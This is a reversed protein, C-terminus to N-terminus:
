RKLINNYERDAHDVNKKEEAKATIVEDVLSMRRELLAIIQDDLADIEKRTKELTM